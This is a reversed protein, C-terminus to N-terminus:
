SILGYGRAQWPNQPVRLQLRDRNGQFEDRIEVLSIGIDLDLDLTGRLFILFLYMWGWVRRLEVATPLQLFFIQLCHRRMMMMMLLGICLVVHTKIITEKRNEGLM